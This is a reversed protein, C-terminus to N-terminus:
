RGPLMRALLNDRDFLQHKLAAAIHLVVLAVMAWGLLEHSEHFLGRLGAPLPLPPLSFVGFWPVPEPTRQTSEMAWGSLPLSFLLLYFGLHVGRAALRELGTMYDPLPPPPNALRWGLRVITLALVTLGFSMHLLVITAGIAQQAPDASDEFSEILHGGVVNGIVLLAILWHLAMAVSSYRGPTASGTM